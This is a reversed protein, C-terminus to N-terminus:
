YLLKDDRMLYSYKLQVENILDCNSLAFVENKGLCITKERGNQLPLVSWGLSGVIQDFLPFKLKRQTSFSTFTKKESSSDM